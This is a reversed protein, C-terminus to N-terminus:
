KLPLLTPGFCVVIEDESKLQHPFTVMANAYMALMESVALTRGDLVRCAECLNPSSVARVEKMYLLRCRILTEYNRRLSKVLGAVARDDCVGILQSQAERSVSLVSSSADFLVEEIREGGLTLDDLAPICDFRALTPGLLSRFEGLDMTYGNLLTNREHEIERNIAAARQRELERPSVGARRALVILDDLESFLQGRLADLQAPPQSAVGLLNLVQQWTAEKYAIEDPALEPLSPM